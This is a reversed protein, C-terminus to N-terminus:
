AQPPRYISSAFIRFAPQEEVPHYPSSCPRVSLTPNVGLLIPISHGGCCQSHACDGGCHHIDAHCPIIWALILMPLVILAVFVPSTSRLRKSLKMAKYIIKELWGTLNEIFVESSTNPPASRGIQEKFVSPLPLYNTVPLDEDSLM